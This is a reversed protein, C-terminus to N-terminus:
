KELDLAKRLEETTIGIKIYADYMKAKEQDDLIQKKLQELEKYTFDDSDNTQIEIQYRISSHSEPDIVCVGIDEDALPIRIM